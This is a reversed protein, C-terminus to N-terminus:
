YDKKSQVHDVYPPHTPTCARTHIHEDEPLDSVGLACVNDKNADGMTLQKGRTVTSVNLCIFVNSIFIFNFLM